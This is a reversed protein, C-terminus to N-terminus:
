SDRSVLLLKMDVAPESGEAESRAPAGFGYLGAGEFGTHVSLPAGPPRPRPRGGRALAPMRLVRRAKSDTSGSQPTASWLPPEAPEQQRQGLEELQIPIPDGQRLRRHCGRLRHGLPHLAERLYAVGAKLGRRRLTAADLTKFAACEAAGSQSALRTFGQASLSVLGACERRKAAAGASEEHQGPASCCRVLLDLLLLSPLLSLLLSPLLSSLLLLLLM